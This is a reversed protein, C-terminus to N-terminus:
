NDIVLVVNFLGLLLLNLYYNFSTQLRCATVFSEPINSCVKGIVRDTRESINIVPLSSKVGPVIFIYQM